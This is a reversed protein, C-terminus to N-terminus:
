RASILRIVGSRLTYAVAVEFGEILGITITIWWPEGYHTATHRGIGSPERRGAAREEDCEFEM